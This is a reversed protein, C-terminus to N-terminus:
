EASTAARQLRDCIAMWAEGEPLRDAVIRTVGIRDLAHLEAYLRAADRGDVAWGTDILLSKGAPTVFLTSQGGEVDIFYVRLKSGATGQANLACAFVLTACFGFLARPRFM